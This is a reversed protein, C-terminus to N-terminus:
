AKVHSRRFRLVTWSWVAILHLEIAYNKFNLTKILSVLIIFALAQSNGGNYYIM